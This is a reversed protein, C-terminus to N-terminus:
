AICFSKKCYAVFLLCRWRVRIEPLFMESKTMQSGASLVDKPTTELLTINEMVSDVKNVIAVPEMTVNEAANKAEGQHM